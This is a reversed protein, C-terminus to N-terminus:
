QWCSHFTKDVNAATISAKSVFVESTGFFNGNKVVSYSTGGNTSKTITYKFGQDKLANDITEVAYYLTFNDALTTSKNQATVDVSEGNTYTGVPSLVANVQYPTLTVTLGKIDGVTLVMATDQTRYSLWAFTGVVLVSIISLIIFIISKKSIKNEKEDM